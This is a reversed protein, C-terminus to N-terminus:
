RQHSLKQTLVAIKRKLSRLKAYNQTSLKCNQTTPSFSIFPCDTVTTVIKHYHHHLLCPPDYEHPMPLGNPVHGIGASPQLYLETPPRIDRQSGSSNLLCLRRTATQHLHPHTGCNCHRTQQPSRSICISLDLGYQLQLITCAHNMRPSKVFAM